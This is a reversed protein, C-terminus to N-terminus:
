LIEERVWTTKWSWGSILVHLPVYPGFHLCRRQLLDLKEFMSPLPISGESTATPVIAFYLWNVIPSHQVIPM